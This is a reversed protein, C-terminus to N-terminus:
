RRLRITSLCSEITVPPIYLVYQMISSCISISNIQEVAKKITDYLV